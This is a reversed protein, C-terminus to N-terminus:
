LPESSGDAFGVWTVTLNELRLIFNGYRRNARAHTYPESHFAIGKLEWEVDGRLGLRKAQEMAEPSVKYSRLRAQREDEVAQEPASIEIALSKAGRVEGAFADLFRHGAAVAAEHDPVQVTAIIEGLATLQPRETRKGLVRDHLSGKTDSDWRVVDTTWHRWNFRRPKIAPTARTLGEELKARKQRAVEAEAEALLAAAEEKNRTRSSRRVVKGEADRYRIYWFGTVEGKRKYISM